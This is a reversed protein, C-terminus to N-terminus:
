RVKGREIFWNTARVMEYPAAQNLVYPVVGATMVGVNGYLFHSNLALAAILPLAAPKQPLYQSM